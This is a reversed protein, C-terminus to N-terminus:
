SDTFMDNALKPALQANLCFMGLKPYVEGIVVNIFPEVFNHFINSQELGSGRLAPVGRGGRTALKTTPQVNLCLM